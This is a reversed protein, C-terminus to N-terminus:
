LGHEMQPESHVLHGRLASLFGARCGIFWSVLAIPLLYFIALNLEPGTLFDAVATIVFFLFALGSVQKKTIRDPDFLLLREV